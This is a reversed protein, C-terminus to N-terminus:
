LEVPKVSICMEFIHLGKPHTKPDNLHNLYFNRSDPQYGSNPFWVKQLYNWVTFCEDLGSEKRVVVYKGGSITTKGILGEGTTNEPVTLCVDAQIVGQDDPISRYVTLAKTDPFKVLDRCEAWNLLTKFMESFGEADHVHIKSNRIYIVPLENLIKVEARISNEQDMKLENLKFNDSALYSGHSKNIISFNSNMICIKSNKVLGNVKMWESPSIHHKKRFSRSFASLSTFGSTIAINSVPVDPRASLYFKARDLRANNIFSNLTQGTIAKFLRHFHFKSFDATGAITELTLEIDLNSRIYDISKNIRCIYERATLEKSIWKM